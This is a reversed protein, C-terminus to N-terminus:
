GKGKCYLLVPLPIFFIFNMNYFETLCGFQPVSVRDLMGVIYKTDSFPGIEEHHRGYVIAMAQLCMCKMEPKSTLLFRHYLDNFFEYSRRIPSDPCDEKELLLRLYYDGIRVEEALCQYQVEFEHHNWAILANGALDRDSSFTRIESDLADRLEERTQFNGSILASVSFLGHPWSVLHDSNHSAAVAFLGSIIILFLFSFVHVSISTAIGASLFTICFSASFFNFYLLKHVSNCRIHFRFHVIICTIIPAVPITVLLRFFFKSATGPFCEISESCFVALSPVDCM